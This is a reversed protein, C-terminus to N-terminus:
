QHDQGGQSPKRPGQLVDERLPEKEGIFTPRTMMAWFPVRMIADKFDKLSLPAIPSLYPIGFSRLSCLYFLIFMLGLMIGILGLFGGLLILSFRLMRISTGVAYNPFAFSAVATLAVVVVSLPGVFGANVSAQGVVLGGVISVAQGITRPLRVGAERLMEFSVEMIFVEIFAPFPLGQSSMALTIFLREPIIEQHFTVIAVVVGPLLLAINLAIFRLIRTFTSFIAQDYYDESAQLLTVFTIPLILAVPSNNTIIAVRGELLSAAVKDPRETWQILPFLSFPQDAILEEITNSGIVSDINIRNLRIKVEKVLKPNVIGQLYCLATKTHTIKGFEFLELKLRSSVLRRRVLSLNTMIDEVFGDRPGRVVPESQPEAIAREEYDKVMCVIAENQDEIFLAAGGQLVLTTLETFDRVIKASMTTLLHQYLVTIADEKTIDEKKLAAGLIDKSMTQKGAMTQAYVLFAKMPHTSGIEFKRYSIDGCLNFIKQIEQYNNNIDKKLPHVDQTDDNKLKKQVPAQGFIHKLLKKFM